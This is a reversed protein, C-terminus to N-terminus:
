PSTRLMLNPQDRFARARFNIFLGLALSAPYPLQHINYKSSQEEPRIQAKLGVLVTVAQASRMTQEGARAALAGIGNVPIGIHNMMSPVSGSATALPNGDLSFLGVSM